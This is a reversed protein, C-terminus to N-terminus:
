ISFELFFTLKMQFVRFKLSKLLSIVPGQIGSCTKAIACIKSTMDTGKNKGIFFVVCFIKSSKEHFYVVDRNWDM